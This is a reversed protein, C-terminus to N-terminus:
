LGAALEATTGDWVPALTESERAAVAADVMSAFDILAEAEEVEARRAATAPHKPVFLTCCDEDPVISIEFTGAQRAYDTIERKDMGVLPRLVPLEAAAEIVSLNVLTQSAVQGLSEGTVLAALHDRRALASAIRMMMRRYLVVRLPRPVAAVIDRQIDGFAVLSLRVPGQGRALLSALLRAKEISTRSLYPASHFHLADIRCGRRMMRLGAVPSDIGGSLLLLVRGGTGVPLGGCGATKAVGFYIADSTVEIRVVQAANKLDVPAHTRDQISAGVRAGIEPSTLPFRKEPRKVEVRFSGTPAWHLLLAEVADDLAQVTPEIEVARLVNAVGPVVAVRRLVEDADARGPRVLLRGRVAAVEAVALDRLRERLNQVLRREFLARHGLKLAIENYHVVLVTKSSVAVASFSVVSAALICGLQRDRRRRPDTASRGGKDRRRAACM